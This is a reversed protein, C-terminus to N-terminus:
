RSIPVGDPQLGHRQLRRGDLFVEEIAHLAELDVSPDGRVLLLNARAGPAIRGVVGTPDLFSAPGSTAARLVELPAMGLDALTSMESHLAVGPFVGHVGSDTGVFLRVGARLLKQFNTRVDPSLREFNEDLGESFGPLAWAPEEQWAELVAPDIASRELPTPGRAALERSAAMMRVTTVIPTDLSKLREVQSDSLVGRQPVHVLLAAGAEAADLADEPTTAHVIPPTGRDWAEEIAAQLAEQSLHPSGPPLDDYIIKLFDPDSDDLIGRVSERAENANGAVVVGRTAFWSFPWPLMANLLPIPHGGPATIGSGATWLRPALVRGKVSDEILDKTEQFGAAVLASTVGAFLLAEGIQVSDFRGYGKEGASILHVHSDILGPLLTKGTGDIQQAGVPLPITGTPAISKVNERETVVDQRLRMTFGDFVSVDRFVFSEPNEDALDVSALQFGGSLFSVMLIVAAVSVGIMILYRPRM